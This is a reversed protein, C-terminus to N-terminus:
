LSELYDAACSVKSITEDITVPTGQSSSFLINSSQYTSTCFFFYYSVLSNHGNMLDSIDEEFDDTDSKESKPSPNQSHNTLDSKLSGSLTDDQNNKTSLHM